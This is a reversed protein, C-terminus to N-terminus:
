FIDLDEGMAYVGIMVVDEFTADDLEGQYDGAELIEAVLDAEALEPQDNNKELYASLFAEFDIGLISEIVDKVAAILEVSPSEELNSM